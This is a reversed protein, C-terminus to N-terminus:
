PTWAGYRKIRGTKKQRTENQCLKPSLKKYNMKDQIDDTNVLKEYLKQKTQRMIEINENRKRLYKNTM